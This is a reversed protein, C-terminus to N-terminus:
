FVSCTKMHLFNSNCFVTCSSPFIGGEMLWECDCIIFLVLNYTRDMPCLKEFGGPFGQMDMFVGSSPLAQIFSMKWSHCMLGQAAAPTNSIWPNWSPMGTLDSAWSPKPLSPISHQGMVFKMEMSTVSGDKLHICWVSHRTQWVIVLYYDFWKRDLMCM